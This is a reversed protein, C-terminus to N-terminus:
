ILQRGKSIFCFHEEFVLSGLLLRFSVSCQLFHEIVDCLYLFFMLIRDGPHSVERFYCVSFIERVEAGVDFLFVELAPLPNPHKDMVQAIEHLLEFLKKLLRLELGFRLNLPM